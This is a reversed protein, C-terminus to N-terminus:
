QPVGQPPQQQPAAAQQQGQQMMGGQPPPPAEGPQPPPMEGGGGQAAVAEQQAKEAQGSQKAGFNNLGVQLAKKIGNPTIDQGGAGILGVLLQTVQSAAGNESLLIEPTVEVGKKQLGGVVAQLVYTIGNALGEGPSKGGQLIGDVTAGSEESSIVRMANIVVRELLDQQESTAKANGM